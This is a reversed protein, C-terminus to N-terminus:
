GFSTMSSTWSTKIRQIYYTVIYFPDLSRPCINLITSMIYACHFKQQTKERETEKKRENRCGYRREKYKKREKREKKEEKKM